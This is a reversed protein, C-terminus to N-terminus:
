VGSRPSELEVEPIEPLPQVRQHHETAEMWVHCKDVSNTRALELIAEEDLSTPGPDEGNVIEVIEMASALKHGGTLPRKREQSVDYRDDTIDQRMRASGTREYLETFSVDSSAKSHGSSSMGERSAAGRQESNPLFSPELLEGRLKTDAIVEAMAQTDELALQMAVRAELSLSDSFRQGKTQKRNENRRCLVDMIRIEQLEAHSLGFDSEQLNSM